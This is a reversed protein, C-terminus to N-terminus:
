HNKTKTLLGRFIKLTDQELYTKYNGAEFIVNKGNAMKAFDELTIETTIIELYKESEIKVIYKLSRSELKESDVTAVFRDGETFKWASNSLSAFRFEIARPKGVFSRGSIKFRIMLDVNENNSNYLNIYGHTFIHSQNETEDYYFAFNKFNESQRKEQALFSITLLIIILFSLFIKM